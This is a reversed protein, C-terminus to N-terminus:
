SLTYVTDVAVRARFAEVLSPRVVVCALRYARRKLLKFAAQYGVGHRLELPGLEDIVLLDCRPVAALVADGWRLAEEDFQWNPTPSAPDPQPRRTALRRPQGTRLDHLDIAVKVGNMFTGVSLLGCVTGGSAQVHRVLTACYTTKGSGSEGSLVILQPKPGVQAWLGEPTPPHTM